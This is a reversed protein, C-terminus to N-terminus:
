LYEVVSVNGSPSKITLMQPRYAGGQQREMVLEHIHGGMMPMRIVKHRSDYYVSRGDEHRVLTGRPLMAITKM